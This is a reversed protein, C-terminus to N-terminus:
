QTENVYKVYMQEMQTIVADLENEHHDNLPIHYKGYKICWENLGELTGDMQHVYLSILKKRKRDERQKRKQTAEDTLNFETSLWNLFAKYQKETLQSLGQEKGTFEQILEKREVPYGMQKIRREMAFYVRYKSKSM